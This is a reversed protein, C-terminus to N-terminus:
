LTLRDQDSAPMRSKRTENSWVSGWCTVQGAMETAVAPSLKPRRCPSDTVYMPMSAWYKEAMSIGCPSAAPPISSDSGKRTPSVSGVRFFMVVFVDNRM